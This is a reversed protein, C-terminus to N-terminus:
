IHAMQVKPDFFHCYLNVRGRVVERMVEIPGGGRRGIRPRAARGWQGGGRWARRRGRRSSRGIPDSEGAPGEAEKDLREERGLNPRYCTSEVTSARIRDTACMDSPPNCFLSRPHTSPPVDLTPGLLPQCGGKKPPTMVVNAATKLGNSVNKKTEYYVFYYRADSM